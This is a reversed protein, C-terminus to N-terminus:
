WSGLRFTKTQRRIPNAIRAKRVEDKAENMLDILSPDDKGIKKLQTRYLNVAAIWRLLAVPIGNSITATDASVSTHPQNYSLFIKFGAEANPVYEPDFRLHGDETEDWWYHTYKGYPAASETAIEVRVLGSVGTPLDYEEQDAVVVLTSDEQTIEGIDMFAQQIARVIDSRSYNSEMVSYPVGLGPVHTQTAFTYTHTTLDYDTVLATKGVLDGSQFFIQGNNWYDVPETTSTDVLTTVSGVSTTFGTRVNQVLKAVELIANALTTTM